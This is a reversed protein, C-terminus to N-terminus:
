KFEISDLMYGMKVKYKQEDDASCLAEFLYMDDGHREAQAVIYYQDGEETFRGTLRNGVLIIQQYNNYSYEFVSSMEEAFINEYDSSGDSELELEELPYKAYVFGVNNGYFAGSEDCDEDIDDSYDKEKMRQPFTITFDNFDKEMKRNSFLAAVGSIVLAVVVAILRIKLRSSFTRSTFADVFWAGVSKLINSNSGYNNQAKYGFNATNQQGFSNTTGYSYNATNRSNYNNQAGYNYSVTNQSNYNNQAGYNYSATNQSNYNNQAGYNYGATNQSNYNNQAGNSSYNNSYSSGYNTTKVPKNRNYAAGMEVRRTGCNNCFLDNDKLPTGCIPCNM